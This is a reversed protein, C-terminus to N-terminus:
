TNLYGKPEEGRRELEMRLAEISVCGPVPQGCDAAAWICNKIENTTWNQIEELEWQYVM